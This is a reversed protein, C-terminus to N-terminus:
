YRVQALVAAHDSGHIGNRPETGLLEARVVHGRGGAHPWGVLVYDIRRDPELARAAFPNANSWTSGPGRGAVEWADHFVLPPAPVASRGTLMRVEDSTPTANLDGCLIPPAVWYAGRAAARETMFKMLLGAQVLRQKRSAHHLHLNILPLRRGAAVEAEIFLFGKDGLARKGFTTTEAHMIPWRSLVGNGYNLPYRGGRANTLGIATFPLGCHESLFTLHNYSGNWRSNEDIEQVAVVDAKVKKILAAIKLLNSRIKVASRLSQHVPLTGRAHAVNFTLLRMRPM